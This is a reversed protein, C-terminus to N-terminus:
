KIFFRNPQEPITELLLPRDSAVVSNQINWNIEIRGHGKRGSKLDIEKVLIKIM